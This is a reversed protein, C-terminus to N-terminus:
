VDINELGTGARAVIKLGPASDILEVDVKVVSKVIIADSKSTWEMIELRYAGCALRVDCDYRLLEIGVEHIAEFLIVRPKIM